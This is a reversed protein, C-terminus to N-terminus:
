VHLLCALLSFLDKMYNGRNNGCSIRQCHRSFRYNLATTVILLEFEFHTVIRFLETCFERKNDTTYPCVKWVDGRFVKSFCALTLIQAM